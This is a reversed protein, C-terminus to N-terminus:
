RGCSFVEDNRGAAFVHRRLIDFIQKLEGRINCVSDNDAVPAFIDGRQDDNIFFIDDFVSLIVFNLIGSKGGKGTRFFHDFKDGLFYVLNVVLDGAHFVDALEPQQILFEVSFVAFDSGSHLDFSIWKLSYLSIISSM